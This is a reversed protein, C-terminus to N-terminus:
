QTDTLYIATIVEEGTSGPESEITITDGAQLISFTKQKGTDTFVPASVPIYVTQTQGAADGAGSAGAMSEGPNMGGPMKGSSGSGHRSGSGTDTIDPGSGGNESGPRGGSNTGDPRSGGNGSGTRDPGSGGNGSGPRSEFGAGDPTSEPNMGEPMTGSDPRQREMEQGPLGTSQDDSVSQAPESESVRESKSERESEPEMGSEETLPEGSQEPKEDQDSRSGRGYEGAQEAGGEQTSDDLSIYTMRNGVISIIRANIRSARGTGNNETEAEANEAETKVNETKVDEKQVNAAQAGEAQVAETKVNEADPGTGEHEQAHVRLGASGTMVASIILVRALLIAPKRKEMMKLTRQLQETNLNMKM